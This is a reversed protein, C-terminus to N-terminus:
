FRTVVRGIRHRGDPEVLVRLYAAPGSAGELWVHRASSHTDLGDLEAYPCEQEAVFVDIRLRVLDHFTAADLGDFCRDHIDAVTPVSARDPKGM